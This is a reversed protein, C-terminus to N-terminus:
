AVTRGTGLGLIMGSRVEELAQAAAKRKLEEVRDEM